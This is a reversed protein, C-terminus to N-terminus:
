WFQYVIGIANVTRLKLAVKESKPFQLAIMIKNRTWWVSIRRDCFFIQDNTAAERRERFNM